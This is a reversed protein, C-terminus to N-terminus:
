GCISSRTPQAGILASGNGAVGRRSRESKTSHTFLYALFYAKLVFFNHHLRERYIRQQRMTRTKPRLGNSPAGVPDFRNACSTDILPSSIRRALAGHSSALFSAGDRRTAAFPDQDSGIDGRDAQCGAPAPRASPQNISSATRSCRPKSRAAGPRNPHGTANSAEAAKM